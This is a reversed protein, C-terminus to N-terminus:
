VRSGQVVHGPMGLGGQFIFKTEKGKVALLGKYRFMDQAKTELMVQDPILNIFSKLVCPSM